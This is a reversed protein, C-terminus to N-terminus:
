HTNSRCIDELALHGSGPPLATNLHHRPGSEAPFKYGRRFVFSNYRPVKIRQHPDMVIGYDDEGKADLLGIQRLHKTTAVSMSMVEGIAEHFGDNAGERFCKLIYIVYTIHKTCSSRNCRFSHPQEAYQMFYQVHGLEHHITLFDEFNVKTCMKIRFDKGDYFDWATAHCVVDRGEPKRLMSREYFSRPLGQIVM